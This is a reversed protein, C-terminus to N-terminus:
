AVVREGLEVQARVEALLADVSLVGIARKLDAREEVVEGAEASAHIMTLVGDEGIDTIIGIHSPTKRPGKATHWLGAQVILDGVSFTRLGEASRKDEPFM